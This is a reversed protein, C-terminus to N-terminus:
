VNKEGELNLPNDYDILMDVLGEQTATFADIQKGPIHIIILNFTWKKDKYKDLVESPLQEMYYQIYKPKGITYQFMKEYDVYYYKDGEKYKAYEVDVKKKIESNIKQIQKNKPWLNEDILLTRAGQRMFYYDFEFSSLSKHELVLRLNGDFCEYVKTNYLLNDSKSFLATLEKVERKIKYLKSVDRYTKELNNIKKDIYIAKEFKKKLYDEDLSGDERYYKVVDREAFIQYYYEGTYGLWMVTRWAFFLNMKKVDEFTQNREEFLIRAVHDYVGDEKWGAIIEDIYKTARKSM